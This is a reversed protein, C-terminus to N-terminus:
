RGWDGNRSVEAVLEPTTSGAMGAPIIPYKIRLRLTLETQYWM